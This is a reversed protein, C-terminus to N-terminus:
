HELPLDQVYIAELVRDRNFLFRIRRGAFIKPHQYFAFFDVMVRGALTDTWAATQRFDDLPSSEICPCQAALTHLMSPREAFYETMLAVRKEIDGTPVIPQMGAPGREWRVKSYDGNELDGIWTQDQDCVTALAILSLLFMTAKKSM